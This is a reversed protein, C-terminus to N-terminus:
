RYDEMIEDIFRGTRRHIKKIESVKEAIDTSVTRQTQVITQLQADTMHGSTIVKIQSCAKTTKFVWQNGSKVSKLCETLVKDTITGDMFEPFIDQMKDDAIAGVIVDHSTIDEFIPKFKPIQSINIYGRNIGVYLAWTNADKFEYVSLNELNCYLVYFVGNKANRLLGKAQEALNGTYFGVGFDCTPRSMDCRPAGVLGFKSGHYLITRDNSIALAEISKGSSLIKLDSTLKANKCYMNGFLKPLKDRRFCKVTGDDFTCIIGIVRGDKYLKKNVTFSGM